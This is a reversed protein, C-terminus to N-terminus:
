VLAKTLLDALQEMTATYTVVISGEKIRERIFHYHIDIHKSQDHFVLSRCLAIASQNDICLEPAGIAM